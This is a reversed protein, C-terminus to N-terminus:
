LRSFFYWIFGSVKLFDYSKKGRRAKEVYAAGADDSYTEEYMKDKTTRPKKLLRESSNIKPISVNYTKISMIGDEEGYLCSIM